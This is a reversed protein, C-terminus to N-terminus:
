FNKVKAKSSLEIIKKAIEEVSLKDADKIVPVILGVDTDVAVGINVYKRILIEAEGILSSNFIPHEVLSSAISKIFFALPTIKIESNENLKESSNM